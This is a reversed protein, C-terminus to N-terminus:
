PQGDKPAAPPTWGLEILKDRLAGEKEAESADMRIHVFPYKESTMKAIVEAQDEAITKWDQVAPQAALAQMLANIVDNAESIARDASMPSESNWDKNQWEQALKLAEDKPHTM